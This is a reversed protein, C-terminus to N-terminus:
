GLFLYMCGLALAAYAAITIAFWASDATTGNATVPALGEPTAEVTKHCFRCVTAKPKILEACFPCERLPGSGDPKKILIAHILAILFLFFGYIWWLVFSRDKSSAIAAPILGLFFAPILIWEPSMM